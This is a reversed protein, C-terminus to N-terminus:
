EDESAGFLPQNPQAPALAWFKNKYKKDRSLIGRKKLDDALFRITTDYRFRKSATIAFDALTLEDKVREVIAQIAKLPELKGGNANLVAILHPRYFNADHALTPAREAESLVKHWSDYNRLLFRIIFNTREREEVIGLITQEIRKQRDQDQKQNWQELLARLTPDEM